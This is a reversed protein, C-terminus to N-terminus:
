LDLGQVTVIRQNPEAGFQIDIEIFEDTIREVFGSGWEIVIISQSSRTELDLDDFSAFAQGILRYADVHILPITGQHIKSIVFTPSSIDHIGLAKGIGRVLSTKGAGLEGRLVVVDGANLHSGVETGLAEMSEPSDINM